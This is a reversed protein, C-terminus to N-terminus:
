TQEIDWSRFALKERTSGFALLVSSLLPVHLDVAPAGLEVCTGAVHCDDPMGVDHVSGTSHRCGATPSTKPLLFGCQKSGHLQMCM